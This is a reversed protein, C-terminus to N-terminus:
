IHRSLWLPRTQWDTPFGMKNFAACDPKSNNVIAKLKQRFSAYDGGLCIRKLLFFCFCLSNYLRTEASAESYISNKLIAAKRSKALKPILTPEKHNWLIHHHACINRLSVMRQLILTFDREHLDYCKALANPYKLNCITKSLGGFTLLEAMKWIPPM